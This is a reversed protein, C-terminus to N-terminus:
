SYHNSFAKLVSHLENKMETNKWYCRGRTVWFPKFQYNLKFLHDYSFKGWIICKAALHLQKWCNVWRYNSLRNHSSWKLNSILILERKLNFFFEGPAKEGRTCRAGYLEGCVYPTLLRSGLSNGREENKNLNVFLWEWGEPKNRNTISTRESMELLHRLPDWCVAFHNSRLIPSLNTWNTSATQM